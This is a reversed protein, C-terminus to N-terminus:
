VSEGIPIGADLIEQITTIQEDYVPQTFITILKSTYITTVNLGYLALLVFFIRLPTYNPRNNSSIGLVVALSNMVCLVLKRHSNSESM